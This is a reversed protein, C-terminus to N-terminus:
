RVIVKQGNIIYINGPLPKDVRVGRLDYIVTKGKEGDVIVTSLGSSDDEDDEDVEEPDGIYVFPKVESDEDLEPEMDVPAYVAENAALSGNNSSNFGVHDGIENFPYIESDIGWLNQLDGNQLSTPLLVGKLSSDLSYTTASAYQVTVEDDKVPLSGEPIADKEPEGPGAPAIPEFVYTGTGVKLQSSGGDKTRLIFPTLAPIEGELYDVKNYVYKMNDEPNVNYYLQSGLKYTDTNQTDVVTVPFDYYLASYDATIGDGDKKLYKHAVVFKQNVNDIPQLVWKGNGGANNAENENGFDLSNDAGNILFARSNYHMRPLYNVLLSTLYHNNVKDVMGGIGLPLNQVFAQFRNEPDKESNLIYYGVWKIWNFLLIPDSFIHDFDTVIKGDTAPYNKEIDYGWGKFLNIDSQLFTELNIGKGALYKTMTKMANKFVDHRKANTTTPLTAETDKYWNSVIDLSPVDFYVQVTREMGQVPLLRIGLDLNATVEKNFDEAVAVYDGVLFDDDKSTYSELSSAVFWFVTGVTARAISTYGYEFGGRVIAYVPSEGSSIADLLLDVYDDPDIAEGVVDIGQCRLSTLKYSGNDEVASVHMVTGASKEAEAYSLNPKATFPGTVEVYNQNGNQQGALTQIRFYGDIVNEASLSLASAAFVASLAITKIGKKM